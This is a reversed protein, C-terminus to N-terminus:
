IRGFRQAGVPGDIRDARMLFKRAVQNDDIEARGRGDVMDVPAPGILAPDNGRADIQREIRQHAIRGLQRADGNGHGFDVTDDAGIGLILHQDTDIPAINRHDLPQNGPHASLDTPRDGHHCGAAQGHRLPRANSASRANSRYLGALFQQKARQAPRALNAHIDIEVARMALPQHNIQAHGKGPIFIRAAFQDKGIQGKDLLPALIQDADHQGMRMLIVDPRHRIERSIQINRKIGRGERGFQHRGFQRFRANIAIDFQIDDVMEV